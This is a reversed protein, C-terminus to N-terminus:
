QLIVCARHFQLLFVFKVNSFFRYRKWTYAFYCYFIARWDVNSSCRYNPLCLIHHCDLLKHLWLSPVTVYLPTGTIREVRQANMLRLIFYELANYPNISIGGKNVPTNYCKFDAEVKVADSTISSWMLYLQSYQIKMPSM